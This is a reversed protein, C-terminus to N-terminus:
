SGLGGSGFSSGDGFGDADDDAPPKQSASRHTSSGKLEHPLLRSGDHPMEEPERYERTEHVAGEKPLHPQENPKPPPLERARIRRGWAFAALLVAVVVIGTLLMFLATNSSVALQFKSADM